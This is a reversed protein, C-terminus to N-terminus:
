PIHKGRTPTYIKPYLHMYLSIKTMSGGRPTACWNAWKDNEDKAANNSTNINICSIDGIYTPTPKQGIAYLSPFNCSMPIIYPWQCTQFQWPQRKIYSMM